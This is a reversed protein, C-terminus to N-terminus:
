DAAKENESKQGASDSPRKLSRRWSLALMVLFAAFIVVAVPGEAFLLIRMLVLYGLAYAFLRGVFAAPTIGPRIKWSIGTLAFVVVLFFIWSLASEMEM